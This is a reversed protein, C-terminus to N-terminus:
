FWVGSNQVLTEGFSTIVLQEFTPVVYMGSNVVRDYVTYGKM